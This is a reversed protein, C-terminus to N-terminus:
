PLTVEIVVMRHDSALSDLVQADQVQLGRMWVYDIRSAPDVAPDTLAPAFGGVIFPDEFGAARMRAYVPSDPTANFDGGLIAPSAAGIIPLADDLQRAREEAELGLWVGYVDLAQGGMQVRAHAMATQELQSSLTHVDSESVPFRSLIAIGSLGELTPAYVEHMGLRRSLWLADDVGYSTIRCTDVEQLTVIDAGSQEITRAQEELSFRWYTDYGYHINYTGIRATAAEKATLAPPWAFAVVAVIAVGGAVWAWLPRPNWSRPEEPLKRLAPLLAIAAAVLFVYIGKKRLAPITYPYTFTFALAFSLILFLLMGLALASGTRDRRRPRVTCFSASLVFLQVLPLILAASLCCRSRRASALLYLALLFGVASTLAEFAGARKRAFVQSQGIPLALLTIALLLPAAIAYDVGSWRAMANPFSLLSTEMFLLAGVSLGGLIGIGTEASSEERPSRSFALWAVIGVGASFAAQVPLWWARLSVDYTDGAARLFQDAALAVILAAPFLRPRRRLFTAAYVGAAAILAISSWLRVTPSNITMPIRALATVLAAAFLVARRNGRPTALPALLAAVVCLMIVGLTSLSLTEAFIADYTLGFIVSFLIRVAQLLFLMVATAEVARFFRSDHM